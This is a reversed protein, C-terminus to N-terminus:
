DPPRCVKCAVYGKSKADKVSSFTVLNYPRIEKAWRCSPYHYKNSNASGVLVIEKKEVQSDKSAAYESSKQNVTVSQRSPKAYSEDEDGCSPYYPSCKASLPSGDCCRCGCVGGHHSCCGKRAEASPLYYSLSLFLVYILVLGIRTMRNKM